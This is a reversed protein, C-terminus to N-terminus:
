VSKRKCVQWPQDLTLLPRVTNTRANDALYRINLTWALPGEAMLCPLGEKRPLAVGEQRMTGSILILLLCAGSPLLQSYKYQLRM